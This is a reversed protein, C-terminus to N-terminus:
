LGMDGKITERVRMLTFGLLNRGCWNLPNYIVDTDQKSLGIGWIRDYPSAEVLVKNGTNLLKKCLERNQSFKAYNGKFVVEERVSSWVEDNYNRIKRGLAKIEKQSESSMILNLVYSDNFTIAKQAMMYQEVCWYSIGDIVFTSPYWNSLFEKGTWFFFYDFREGALYRNRLEQIDM